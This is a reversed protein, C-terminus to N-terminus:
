YDDIVREIRSLEVTSGSLEPEGEQEISKKLFATAKDCNIEIWGKRM